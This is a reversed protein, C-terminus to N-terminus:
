SASKAYDDVVSVIRDLLSTFGNFDITAAGPRVVQEAFVVKGYKGAENHKKDPDFKKGNVEVMLLAPAFLDEICAKPKTEPTKVLYLNHTLRYFNATSTHTIGKIGLEAAVNFVQNAGDDNDILLIVPHGLPCYKFSQVLKKYELMFFKFDGAGNGLQLVDHATKTYSMFRVALELKGNTIAGLKPYSAALNQIATRLYISDTKGEPLILPKDLAVFNKFFLFRHYLRRTATSKKKKEASERRDVGNRVHYIHELRGQLPAISTAVEVIDEDDPKGGNLAAPVKQYYTGPYRLNSTNRQLPCYTSYTNLGARSSASCLRLTM